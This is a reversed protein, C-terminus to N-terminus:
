SPAPEEPASSSDGAPPDADGAEAQGEVPEWDALLATPAFDDLKETIGALRRAVWMQALTADTYEARARRFMTPISMGIAREIDKLEGVPLTAIASEDYTWWQDGYAAHDDAHLRFRVPPLLQM